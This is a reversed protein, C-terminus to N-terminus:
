KATEQGLYSPLYVNYGLRFCVKLKGSFGEECRCVVGRGSDYVCQGHDCRAASCSGSQGERVCGPRVDRTVDRDDPLLGVFDAQM